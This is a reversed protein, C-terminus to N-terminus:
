KKHTKKKKQKHSTKSQKTQRSKQSSSSHPQAVGKSVEFPVVLILSKSQAHEYSLGFVWRKSLTSQFKHTSLLTLVNTDSADLLMSLAESTGEKNQNWSARLETHSLNLQKLATKSLSIYATVETGHSPDIKIQQLSDLQEYSEPSNIDASKKTNLKVSQIVGQYPEFIEIDGLQATQQVRSLVDILSVQDPGSNLFTIVVIMLGLGFFLYPLKFEKRQKSSSLSGNFYENSPAHQASVLPDVYNLSERSTAEWEKLAPIPTAQIELPTKWLSSYSIAQNVLEEEPSTARNLHAVMKIKHTDQQDINTHDEGELAHTIILEPQTATLAGDTFKMMLTDGGEPEDSGEIGIIETLSEIDWDNHEATSAMMAQVLASVYANCSPFRNEKNKSLAKHIIREVDVSLSPVLERISIPESQVINTVIQMLQEGGFPLYGSLMEYTIIGLSFQDAAQDVDANGIAQEPSMYQPTGLFGHEKVTINKELTRVKSVGFDLVKVHPLDTDPTECLFINDPKLDRHIIEKSHTAQLASGVQAIIHCVEQANLGGRELRKSLPEGKLYELVIYPSEDPLTNLDIVKTIHPHHLSAMIYAERQFRNFDEERVKGGFLFKVAVQLGPLRTHEALWVEGMGGAGIQANLCYTDGIVTGPKIKM